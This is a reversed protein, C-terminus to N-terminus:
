DLLWQEKRPNILLTNELYVRLTTKLLKLEYQFTDEFPRIFDPLLNLGYIPDKRYDIWTLLVKKHPYDGLNDTIFQAVRDTSIAIETAELDETDINSQINFFDTEVTNYDNNKVLSFKTNIRDKGSFTTTTNNEITNNKVSDLESIPTFNNPYTVKLTINAPEVFLDELDKNSYYHWAGDFVAPTIYWFRLNYVGDDTVGYRTFKNNPIQVIYTLTLNYFSNPKLPTKLAVKIVDPHAELREFFMNQNAQKISTIATFGRDENKAFHFTTKFEDAFREALPTKKSSYSHSWDNLYITDLTKNTKNQYQITQTIDITHKETNFIANIDLSNQSLASISSLLFCLLISYNLKM